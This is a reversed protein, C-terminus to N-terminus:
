VMTGGPEGINYFEDDSDEFESEEESSSVDSSELKLQSSLSPVSM